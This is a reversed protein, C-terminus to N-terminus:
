SSIPLWRDLISGVYEKGLDHGAGPVITVNIGLSDGLKSVNDPNSQWDESGVHIECDKPTPMNGQAALEKLKNARPPIFGSMSTEESFSGIIPSLLLVRGPFPDLQVQTHLFLYAGFSNAIIHSENTWFSAALDSAILDIQDQFALSKFEGYLERGEIKHGRTTIGEGLGLHLRGGHGSLYYVTSMFTAVCNDNGWRKWVVSFWLRAM